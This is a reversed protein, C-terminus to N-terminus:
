RFRNSPAYRSYTVSFRHRSFQHSSARLGFESYQHLVPEIARKGDQSFAMDGEGESSAPKREPFKVKRLTLYDQIRPDAEALGLVLHRCDIVNMREKVAVEQSGVIGVRSAETFPEWM